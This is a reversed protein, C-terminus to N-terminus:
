YNQVLRMGASTSFKYQADALKTIDASEKTQIESLVNTIKDWRQGPSLTATESWAIIRVFDQDVIQEQKELFVDYAKHMDEAGPITTPIKLQKRDEKVEKLVAKVHAYAERVAVPDCAKDKELPTLTARFDWAAKALRKNSRVMQDNFDRVSGGKSGCGVLALLLLSLSAAGLRKNNWPM